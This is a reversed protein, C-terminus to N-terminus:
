TTNNYQFHQSKSNTSASASSTTQRQCSFDSKKILNVWEGSESQSDQTLSLWYDSIHSRKAFGLLNVFLPWEIAIHVLRPSPTVSFDVTPIYFSWKQGSSPPAPIFQTFHPGCQQQIVGNIVVIKVFFPWQPSFLQSKTHFYNDNQSNAWNKRITM